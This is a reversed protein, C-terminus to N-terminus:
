IGCATTGHVSICVCAHSLVLPGACSTDSCFLDLARSKSVGIGDIRLNFELLKVYDM